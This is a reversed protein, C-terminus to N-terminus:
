EGINFYVGFHAIMLINEIDDLTSFSFASPPSAELAATFFGFPHLDFLKNRYLRVSGIALVMNLQFLKDKNERSTSSTLSSLEDLAAYVRTPDLIPHAVHFERFSDLPMTLM